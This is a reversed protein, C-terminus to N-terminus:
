DMWKEETKRKSEIRGDYIRKNYKRTKVAAKVLNGAPLYDEWQKQKTIHKTRYYSCSSISFIISLLFIIRLM